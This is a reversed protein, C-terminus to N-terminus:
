KLKPLSSPAAKVVSAAQSGKIQATPRGYPSTSKRATQKKRPAPAARTQFAGRYVLGRRPKKQTPVLSCQHGDAKCNMCTHRVNDGQEGFGCQKEWECNNKEVKCTDCVVPNLDIHPRDGSLLLLGSSTLTPELPENDTHPMTRSAPDLYASDTSPSLSQTTGPTVEPWKDVLREGSGNPHDQNASYEVSDSEQLASSGLVSEFDGNLNPSEPLDNTPVFPM